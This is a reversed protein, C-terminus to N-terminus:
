DLPLRKSRSGCFTLHTLKAKYTSYQCLKICKLPWVDPSHKIERSWNTLFVLFKVKVTVTYMWLEWPIIMEVVKLHTKASQECFLTKWGKSKAKHIAKHLSIQSSRANLSQDTSHYLAVM